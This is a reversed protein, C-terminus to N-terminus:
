KKSVAKKQENRTEKEKDKNKTDNKHRAPDDLGHRGLVHAVGELLEAVGFDMIIIIISIDIVVVVVVVVIIVNTIMVIIM